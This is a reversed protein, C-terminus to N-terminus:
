QLTDAKSFSGIIQFVASGIVLFVFLGLVVASVKFGEKEEKDKKPSKEINQNFKEARLRQKAPIGM